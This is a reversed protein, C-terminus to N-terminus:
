HAPSSTGRAMAELLAMRAAPDAPLPDHVLARGGRVTVARSASAAFPEIDHTVVVVSASAALLSRVWALVEDRMARDLTELPEDLLVIKPAGIMAAALVARRRQGMSLERVSRGGLRPLGVTALAAAARDLPAGRLRCVLTLIESLTAYPTLDPQEPVYALDRRAAVEDAWLDHGAVDVRGAQPMEVGAAIRLLTSKGCGNPGLLLTLGAGLDLDVGDLIPEGAGYAFRAGRLRIM